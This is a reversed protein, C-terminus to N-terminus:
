ESYSFYVKPYMREMKKVRHVKLGMQRKTLARRKARTMKPRLDKPLYKDNKHKEVAEVYKKETLVTLARAVNKKAVRMEHGKVIGSRKQQRATLYAAKLDGIMTELDAMSKERIESAEIKM